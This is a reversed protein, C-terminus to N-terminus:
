EIDGPNTSEGLLSAPSSNDVTESTFGQNVEEGTNVMGEIMDLSDQMESGMSMFERKMGEIIAPSADKQANIDCKVSLAFTTLGRLQKQLGAIEKELLEKTDPNQGVYAQAKDKVLEVRGQYFQVMKMLQAIDGMEEGKLDIDAIPLASGSNKFLPAGGKDQGAVSGSNKVTEIIHELKEAGERIQYTVGEFLVTNKSITTTLGVKICNIIFEKDADSIEGDSLAKHYVAKMLSKVAALTSPKSTLDVFCQNLEAIVSDKMSEDILNLQHGLLKQAV